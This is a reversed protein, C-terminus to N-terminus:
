GEVIISESIYFHGAPIKVDRGANLETRLQVTIDTGPIYESVKV